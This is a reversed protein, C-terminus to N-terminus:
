TTQWRPKRKEEMARLGEKGDPSSILDNLEALAKTWLAEEDPLVAERLARKVAAYARPASRGLHDAQQVAEELVEAGPVLRDVLGAEFAEQARLTRGELVLEKVLGPRGTLVAAQRILATTPSLGLRIESLAVKGQEAGIIRVDCGLSVILGGLLAAGGIAAVAPKPSAALRRHVGIMREFLAPRQEEPLSLMQDLDLGASFYKPLASALVIARVAPDAEAAEIARRLVDLFDLTLTNAPPRNMTLVRVPGRDEILLESMLEM